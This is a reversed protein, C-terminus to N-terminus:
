PTGMDNPFVLNHPDYVGNGKWHQLQTLLYESMPLSRAGSPTKPRATKEASSAGM